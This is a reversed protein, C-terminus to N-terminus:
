LVIDSTKTSYLATTIGCSAQFDVPRPPIM